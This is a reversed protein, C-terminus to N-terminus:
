TGVRESPAAQCGQPTCVIPRNVVIPHEIVAALIADNSVGEKFLGLQAAPSKTERHAAYPGRGCLPGLTPAQDM